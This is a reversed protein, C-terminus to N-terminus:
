QGIFIVWSAMFLLLWNVTFTIYMEWFNLITPHLAMQCFFSRKGRHSEVLNKTKNLRNGRSMGKTYSSCFPHRSIKCTSNKREHTQREREDFINSDKGNGKEGVRIEDGHKQRHKATMKKITKGAEQMTKWDKGSKGM